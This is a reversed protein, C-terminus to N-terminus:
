AAEGPSQPPVECSKELFYGAVLLVYGGVATIIIAPADNSAAILTSIRPIIYFAVGVYIGAILAGAWASASGVASWGAAYIPNFQSRDIGIKNEKVKTRIIKGMVACLVALFWVILAPGYHAAPFSGYFRYVFIVSLVVVYIHVLVLHLIRTRKM